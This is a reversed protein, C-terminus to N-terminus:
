AVITCPWLRRTRWYCIRRCFSILGVLMILKIRLLCRDGNISPLFLPEVLGRETCNSLIYGQYHIEFGRKTCLSCSVRYNYMSVGSKNALLFNQAFVIDTRGVNDVEYAM